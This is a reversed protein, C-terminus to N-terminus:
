LYTIIELDMRQIQKFGDYRIYLHGLRWTTDYVIYMGIHLM